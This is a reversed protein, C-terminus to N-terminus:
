DELALEHIVQSSNQTQRLWIELNLLTWLIKENNQVGNVHDDFLRELQNQKYFHRTLSATGLIHEHLYDKMQKQFWINVPVRFGVKPRNLIESPLMPEMAKRLIWKTTTGRIRFNDPLTSVYRALEIDLFPMRAELSAAMTMRDGRELLNDPLWSIQDFLLIRRLSSPSNSRSILPLTSQNGLELIEQASTNNLGGFWSPMREDFCEINANEIGTKFRRFKYPLRRAIPAVFRHRIYRPIWQYVSVLREVVHKSYGGLIEDSGEGTLVMKVSKSAEQALLYIPIDSPECVPADRFRIVLPLLEMLHDQSVIVEHHDTDFHHAVSRASELESYEREQFGISFTKIRRSSHQSMLGVIASSDIGGSLFAGYPVDSIMRLKVAEDLHDWFHKIARAEDQELTKPKLDPPNFYSEIKCNGNTWRLYSGPPLKFVGRHFTEPSPVYRYILYNKVQNSEFRFEYGPIQSFAKIESAFFLSEACELYFLPKKGFPDRVLLLEELEQDWLAFAFMGRLRNVCAIGWAEYARLLVETDSSEEFKYGLEILESKLSRFNYIEGNYCLLM